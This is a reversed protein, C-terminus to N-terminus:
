SRNDHLLLGWTGRLAVADRFAGTGSAGGGAACCRLEAAVCPSDCRRTLSPLSRGLEVIEGSAPAGLEVTAPPNSTSAAAVRHDSIATVRVHQSSSSSPPAFVAASTPHTRSVSVGPLMSMGHACQPIRRAAVAAGHVGGVVASRCGHLDHSPPEAAPCGPRQHNRPASCHTPM